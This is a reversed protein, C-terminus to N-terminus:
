FAFQEPTQILESEYSIERNAPSYFFEGTEKNFFDEIAKYIGRLSDAAHSETKHEPGEYDGTHANYKRKYLLIKKRFKVTTGKNFITLAVGEIARLIGTNKSERKMVLVNLLGLDRLKQARQVADSDRVTADHPLFHASYVYPRQTIYSVLPGYGTNNIEFYDIIRVQKKYYQFFTIAMSDSMGLDWSTYVPYSPNYPFAGIRNKKIAMRIASGFYSSSSVQGWDCLYEQRWFFDNGYKEICEQRLEELLEDTLYEKATVISAYQTKAGQTWNKLARKFYMKFTGGSIGDIKPTSIIIIQGGNVATVPRIVDMVGSLIDVFESLIYIKANAGRLAEPDTAGLVQFTSGNKLVIRMNTNDRREILSKPIHDITKWGDNEINEWFSNKGQDKIPFVLVVNMPQEVMKKIAYAFSTLDKGARRAWCLVAISVGSDLATIADVQYDRPKYHLPIQM